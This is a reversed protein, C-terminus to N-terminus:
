DNVAQFLLEYTDMYTKASKAMGEAFPVITPSTMLGPPENAGEFYGQVLQVDREVRTVKNPEREYFVAGDLTWLGDSSEFSAIKFQGVMVDEDYLIGNGDIQPSNSNLYIRGKTGMVPLHHAMSRLLGDPDRYFRGDFTYLAVGNQPELCFMNLGGDVYVDLPRNSLVPQQRAWDIYQVPVIESDNRMVNVFKYRKYGPVNLHVIASLHAKYNLFQGAMGEKVMRYDRQMNAEYLHPWDEYPKKAFPLPEPAVAHLKICLVLFFPVYFGM